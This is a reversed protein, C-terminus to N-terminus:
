IYLDHSDLFGQPPDPPDILVWKSCWDFEGRGVVDITGKRLLKQAGVPCYRDVRRADYAGPWM